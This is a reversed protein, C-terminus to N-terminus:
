TTKLLGVVFKCYVLFIETDFFYDLMIETEFWRDFFIEPTLFCKLSSIREQQLDEDGGGKHGGSEGSSGWSISGGGRVDLLLEGRLWVGVFVSNSIVVALGVELLGLCLIGVTNNGSAEHDSEGVASDLGGLVGSVVDISEDGIDGVLSGWDVWWLGLLSVSMGWSVLGWGWSVM